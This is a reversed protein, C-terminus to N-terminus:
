MSNMINAGPPPKVSDWTHKAKLTDIETKMPITWREPNTAMALRYSKPINHSAKMKNLCTIANVHDDPLGNIIVNAKPHTKNTAWDQGKSKGSNKCEKYEMSQLQAQLPQTTWTSQQESITVINPQNIPDHNDPNQHPVNDHHTTNDDVDVPEPRADATNTEATNTEFIPIDKGVNASTRYPQGEEFIIDRSVFVQNSAVDQVKYNGQGTVYGLLWCEVSHPDLKSSCLGASIKAWCKVGFVRLHSIDQQKGSFGKLPIWGPHCRSPILNRTDISYAAAEAWFSHNLGSDHLLTYVNNM